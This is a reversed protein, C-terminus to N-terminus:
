VQPSNSYGDIKDAHRQFFAPPGSSFGNAVHLNWVSLCWSAAVNLGLVKKSYTNAM